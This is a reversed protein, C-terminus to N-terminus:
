INTHTYLILRGDANGGCFLVRGPHNLYGIITFYNGTDLPMNELLCQRLM